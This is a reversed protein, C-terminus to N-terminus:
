QKKKQRVAIQQKDAIDGWKQDRTTKSTNTSIYNIKREQLTREKLRNRENLIAEAQGFYVSAPTLNDLSEHYRKNNYYDVWQAIAEELESPHYYNQLKVTNKMSRHYREIKGQTQPHHPAGHVQKMRFNDELFTALESAVYCAGNDSLLKPPNHQGLKAKKIAETITDKVDATKMTPYLKWHVIYRSFDDLITSLYYWGLGKILFYTFDTQWMENQFKTKHHFSDRAAIVDYQVREILGHSKLIRYVSSESIYIKQEDTIKYALERASLEPHELALEIVLGRQADPIRNWQHSTRTQPLFADDGCKLYAGLWKYFTSRNVGLKSLTRKIGLDSNTVIRIIELKESASYRM